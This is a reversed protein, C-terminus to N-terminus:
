NQRWNLAMVWLLQCKRAHKTPVNDTQSEMTSANHSRKRSTVATSQSVDCTSTVNASLRGIVSLVWVM